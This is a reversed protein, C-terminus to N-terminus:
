TMEAWFSVCKLLNGESDELLVRKVIYYKGQYNKTTIELREITRPVERPIDSKAGSNRNRRPDTLLKTTYNGM